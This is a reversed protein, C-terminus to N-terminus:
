HNTLNYDKQLVLLHQWVLAYRIGETDYWDIAAHQEDQESLQLGPASHMKEQEHFITLIIQLCRERWGEYYVRQAATMNQKDLYVERNEDM